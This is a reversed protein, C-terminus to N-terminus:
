DGFIENVTQQMKSQMLGLGIDFIGELKIREGESVDQLIVMNDPSTESEVTRHLSNIFAMDRLVENWATVFSSVESFENVHQQVVPLTEVAERDGDLKVALLYNRIYEVFSEVLENAARKLKKREETPLTATWSKLKSKYESSALQWEPDESLSHVILLAMQDTRLDYKEKWEPEAWLIEVGRYIAVPPLALALFGQGPGHRDFARVIGFCMLVPIGVYLFLLLVYILGTFFKGALSTDNASASAFEEDSSEKQLYDEFGDEGIFIDEEDELPIGFVAACKPCKAKTGPTLATATLRANCNPCSIAM